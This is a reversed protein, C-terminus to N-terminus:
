QDVPPPPPPLPPQYTSSESGPSGPRRKEFLAVGVTSGLMALLCFIVLTFILGMVILYIEAGERTFFEELMRRTEPPMNSPMRDISEKMQESLSTGPGASLLYLPISFLTFVVTGLVGTFLGLGVGRGLTVPAPSDKVYLYAALVGGAIVWACCLCNVLPLASLVGLLVGGILAPKLMKEDNM